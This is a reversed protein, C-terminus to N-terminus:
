PACFNRVRRFMDRVDSGMPGVLCGTTPLLGLYDVMLVHIEYGSAELELVKNLLHMYTWKTPDVRLLKIEYGNIGLRQKVYSAM